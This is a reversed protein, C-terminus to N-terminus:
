VQPEWSWWEHQGDQRDEQTRYVAWRVQYSGDIKQSWAEVAPPVKFLEGPKGGEVAITIGQDKDVNHVTGFVQKEHMLTKRDLDIYQIRADVHAALVDEINM